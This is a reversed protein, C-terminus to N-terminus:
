GAIWRETTGGLILNALLRFAYTLARYRAVVWRALTLRDRDLAAAFGVDRAFEVLHGLSEVLATISRPMNAYILFRM